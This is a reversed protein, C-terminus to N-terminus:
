LGCDCDAAAAARLRISYVIFQRKGHERLIGAAAAHCLHLICPCIVCCCRGRPRRESRARVAAILCLVGGRLSCLGCFIKLYFNCVARSIDGCDDPRSRIIHHLRCCPCSKGRNGYRAIRSRPFITSRKGPRRLFSGFFVGAINLGYVRRVAHRRKSGAGAVSSSGTSHRFITDIYEHHHIFIAIGDTRFHKHLVNVVLRRLQFLQLAGYRCVPFCARNLQCASCIVTRCDVIFLSVTCTM